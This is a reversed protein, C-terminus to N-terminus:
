PERHSYPLKRYYPVMIYYGLYYSKTPDENDPGGFLTGRKESVGM